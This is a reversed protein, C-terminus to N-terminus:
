FFGLLASKIKQMDKLSLKAVVAGIHDHKICAKVYSRIAERDEVMYFAGDATRATLQPEGLDLFQSGTPENLELATVPPQNDFITIPDDLNLSVSKAM